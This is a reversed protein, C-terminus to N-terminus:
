RSFCGISSILELLQVFFGFADLISDHFVLDLRCSCLVKKIILPMSKRKGDNSIWHSKMRSSLDFLFM